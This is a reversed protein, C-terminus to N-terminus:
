FANNVIMKEGPSLSAKKVSSDIKFTGEREIKYKGNRGVGVEIKDNALKRLVVENKKGSLNKISLVRKDDNNLYILLEDAKQFAGFAVDSSISFQKTSLTYHTASLEVNYVVDRLNYSFKTGDLEAIMNPELGMRNWKPRIGYIDRYLATVTTSIGALIDDGLGRQTQRSYRQSSLGDKNYQDLINRIYKLAISKDYGAYARVGLYGWTPFIDGNEYKPFPWNGQDVEERKFSDFCLPWHFLKEATSRKEIQDLLQAKRVPDDCLGFAVAAFNVPTVLNDGHVSGDKDRWYVYQKKSDSWFGGQEVPLNFSKKLKEAVEKYYAAKSSDGLVMESHAWLNLADYMQANVFANEYSAWVIDLWDSAKKDSINANKMEFIGNKNEDRKILWDLARECSEKHGKLWETDGNLDFQESVNIVYGTQSDITYGWMAEYYGTEANYTGRIEDGAANHWRSLVRGDPLTALDREQDLTSSFNRTYNKDNLAMGMQAFFPEHLCKWNTLWGNGGVINNDVVGYRGTTNMLERVAVADIGSLQGRSYVDNYDIYTLNLSIAQTKKSIDHSAFVDAKGSVFRSLHYRQQLPSNSVMQTFSFENKGNNSFTAALYSDHNGVTEIQLADGSSPEYFTVGGTHVGYTDNASSLYKCWVMGGNDIIGGKWLNMGNFNWKPFLTEEAKFAKDYERKIQWGISGDKLTFTWTENIDITDLSYVINSLTISKRGQKVLIQRGGALSTVTKNTRIGTFAGSPSLLEKGRLSMRAIKCGNAYSIDICLIGKLDTIRITKEKPDHNIAGSTLPLAGSASVEFVLLFCNLVLIVM